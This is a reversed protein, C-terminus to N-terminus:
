AAESDATVPPRGDFLVTLGSAKLAAEFETHWEESCSAHRTIEGGETPRFTETLNKPHGHGAVIVFKGDYQGARTIGKWTRKRPQLLRVHLAHEYQAYKGLEVTAIKAEIGSYGFFGNVYITVKEFTKM